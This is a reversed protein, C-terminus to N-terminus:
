GLSVTRCSSIQCHASVGWRAQRGAEPTLGNPGPATVQPKVPPQPPRDTVAPRQRAAEPEPVARSDASGHSWTVSRTRYRRSRPPGQRPHRAGRAPAERASASMPCPTTSAPFDPVSWVFLRSFRRAVLWRPNLDWGWRTVNVAGSWALCDPATTTRAARPVCPMAPHDRRPRPGQCRDAESASTSQHSPRAPLTTEFLPIARDLDGARYYASALNNGPRGRPEGCSRARNTRSPVYSQPRLAADRRIIPAM